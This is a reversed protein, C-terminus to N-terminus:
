AEGDPPEDGPHEETPIRYSGRLWRGLDIEQCRQSCFPRVERRAPKGCIPCRTPPRKRDSM